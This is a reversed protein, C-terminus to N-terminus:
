VSYDYYRGDGYDYVSVSRGSVRGSFYHGAGYDYGSFDVGRVNLQVYAGCGYDYLSPVTGSFYCSREYDYVNVTAPSLAASAEISAPAAITSLLPGTGLCLVALWM